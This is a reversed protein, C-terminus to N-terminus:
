CFGVYFQPFPFLSFMSKLFFRFRGVREPWFQLICLHIYFVSVRMLKWPAHWEPKPMTLARKQVIAASSMKDSPVLAKSSQPGALRENGGSNIAKNRIEAVGPTQKSAEIRNCFFLLSSKCLVDARSFLRFVPPSVFDTQSCGM